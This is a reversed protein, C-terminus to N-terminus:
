FNTVMHGLLEVGLYDGLLSPFRRKRLFKDVFMWLLMVQFLGLNSIIWIDM